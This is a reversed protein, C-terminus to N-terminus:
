QMVDSEDGPKAKKQKEALVLARHTDLLEKMQNRVPELHTQADALKQRFGPPDHRLTRCARRRGSARAYLVGADPLLRGAHHPRVQPQPLQRLRGDPRADRSGTTDTVDNLFDQWRQPPDTSLTDWPSLRVYGTATIADADDPYLEDGAIQEKLFRDYPKDQNFARIVYDRIGGPAPGSAM